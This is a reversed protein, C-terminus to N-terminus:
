DDSPHMDELRAIKTELIAIKSEQNNTRHYLDRIDRSHAVSIEKTNSHETVLKGLELKVENISKVLDKIFFANVGLLITILVYMLQALEIQM